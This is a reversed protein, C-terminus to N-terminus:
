TQRLDEVEVGGRLYAGQGREHPGFSSVLGKERIVAGSGEGTKRFLVSVVVSAYNQDHNIV